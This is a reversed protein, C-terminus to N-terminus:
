PFPLLDAPANQLIVTELPALAFGHGVPIEQAVPDPGLNAIVVTGGIRQSMLGEHGFGGIRMAATQKAPQNPVVVVISHLIDQGAALWWGNPWAHHNSILEEELRCRSYANRDRWAKGPLNTFVGFRDDVNVWRSELRLLGRSEKSTGPVEMKGDQFYIVRKNPALGPADENLIPVLGTAIERLRVDKTAVLRELYIVPGDPLSFLAIWQEIAGECRSIRAALSFGDKQAVVKRELVKPPTDKLGECTIWGVMGRESPSTFWTDDAPYVLGMAGNVWAFSVFKEPTRHTVFGGIDYLHVGSQRALFEERTAPKPGDGLLRHLVCLEAYRAVMEEEANAYNYERPDWARGDEFRAHMRGFFDLASRELFAADPDNLLVSTLASVALPVDHRHPWWDQGNVYFLSGNAATLRKLVAWAQPVNHFLSQPPEVGAAAYAVANRLMLGFCGLYDPHVRNHNELTFDPHLTVATVRERVPRGDVIREEKRDAERAYSNILYVIARERWLRANPHDPFMCEALAIIMSNWANEEAKTDHWEGSDPPRTNFRNAEHIVFRAVLVRLDDDLRDWALWAAHGAWHAWLASQWQDGWPQGDGTPLFNAKHTIALYRLLGVMDQAIREKPVGAVKEDYPGTLLVSYGLAVTANQRVALEQHGDLKHFRCGPAHPWDRVRPQTLRVYRLLRQYCERALPTEEGPPRHPRVRYLGALKPREEALIRERDTASTPGAKPEAAWALGSSAAVVLGV